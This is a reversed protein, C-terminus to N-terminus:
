LANEVLRAILPETPTIHFLFRNATEIIGLRKRKPDLASANFSQLRHRSCTM